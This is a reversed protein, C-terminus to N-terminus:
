VKLPVWDSLAKVKVPALMCPRDYAPHSRDLGLQHLENAGFAFVSPGTAEEVVVLTHRRGAAVDIVRGYQQLDAIERPHSICEEKDSTGTCEAVVRALPHAVFRLITWGLSEWRVWNGGSHDVGAM